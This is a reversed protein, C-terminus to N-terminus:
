GGAEFPLWMRFEWLFGRYNLKSIRAGEEPQSTLKFCGITVVYWGPYRRIFDRHVVFAAQWKNLVRKM